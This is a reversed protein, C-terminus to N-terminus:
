KKNLMEKLTNVVDDQKVGDISNAWYTLPVSAITSILYTGTIWLIQKGIAVFLASIVFSFLAVKFASPQKIFEMVKDKFILAIILFTFIAAVSIASGTTQTFLGFKAITVGVIPLIQLATAGIRIVQSKKVKIKM